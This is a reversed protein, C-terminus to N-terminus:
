FDFYKFASSNQYLVVDLNTFILASLLVISMNVTFRSVFVSFLVFLTASSYRKLSIYGFVNTLSLLTLVYLVTKNHFFDM